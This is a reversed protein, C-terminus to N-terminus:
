IGSMLVPHDRGVNLLVAVMVVNSVFRVDNPGVVTAARMEPTICVAISAATDQFSARMVRLVKDEKVFRSNSSM